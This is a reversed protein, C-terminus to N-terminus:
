FDNIGIYVHKRHNSFWYLAANAPRRSERRLYLHLLLLSSLFELVCTCLMCPISACVHFYAGQYLLFTWTLRSALGGPAWFFHLFIFDTKNLLSASIIQFESLLIKLVFLFLRSSNQDILKSGKNRLLKLLENLFHQLFTRAQQQNLSFRLKKM